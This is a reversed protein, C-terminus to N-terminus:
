GVLGSFAWFSTIGIAAITAAGAVAFSRRGESGPASLRVLTLTGVLVVSGLFVAVSWPERSDTGAGIGHATALLYLAFALAHLRRWVAYRIWRRLLSSIWVALLLYLGAIGLGTWFPRYSDVFPVLVDQAHFHTFPDIWVAGLHIGVFVVALVTLFRHVENTVFPTLRSGRLRGSLLLGAAVSLTLLLYATYGAARATEWTVTSM